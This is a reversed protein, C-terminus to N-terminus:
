AQEDREERLMAKHQTEGTADNNNEQIYFSPFISVMRSFVNVGSWLYYRLIVFYLYAWALMKAASVIIILYRYSPVPIQSLIFLHDLPAPIFAVVSIAAIQVSRGLADMFHMGTERCRFQVFFFLYGTLGWSILHYSNVFARQTVVAGWDRFLYFTWEPMIGLAFFLTWLILNPLIWPDKELDPTSM